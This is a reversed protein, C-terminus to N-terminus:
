IKVFLCAITVNLFCINEMTIVNLLEFSITMESATMKVISRWEMRDVIYGVCHVAQSMSAAPCRFDAVTNPSWSKVARLMALVRNSVVLLQESGVMNQILMLSLMKRLLLQLRRSVATVTVTERITMQMINFWHPLRIVTKFTVVYHGCANTVHQKVFYDSCKGQSTGQKEKSESKWVNVTWHEVWSNMVHHWLTSGTKFLSILLMYMKVYLWQDCSYGSNMLPSSLYAFSDTFDTDVKWDNLQKNLARIAFSRDFKNNVLAISDAYTFNM